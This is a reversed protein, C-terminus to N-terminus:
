VCCHNTGMPTIMWRVAPWCYFWETSSPSPAAHSSTCRLANARRPVDHLAAPHLWCTRFLRCSTSLLQIGSVCADVLIRGMLLSGLLEEPYAAGVQIAERVGHEQTVGLKAPHGISRSLGALSRNIPGPRQRRLNSPVNGAVRDHRPRDTHLVNYTTASM